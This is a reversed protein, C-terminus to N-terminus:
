TGSSSRASPSCSSSLSPPCFGLAVLGSWGCTGVVYALSMPGLRTGERVLGHRERCGAPRPRDRHSISEIARQKRLASWQQRKSDIGLVNEKSRRANRRADRLGVFRRTLCPSTFCCDCRSNGARSEPGTLHQSTRGVDDRAQPCGIGAYRQTAHNPGITNAFGPSSPM